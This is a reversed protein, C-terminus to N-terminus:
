QANSGLSSLFSGKCSQQRFDKIQLANFRLIGGIEPM